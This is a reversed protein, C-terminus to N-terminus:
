RSAVRETLPVLIQTGNENALFIVRGFDYSHANRVDPHLNDLVKLGDQTAVVLVAHVRVRQGILVVISMEDASFGMERLLAYKALAFDECDGAGRRVFDSPADWRDSEGSTERDDKYAIANFAHNVRELANGGRDNSIREAIASWAARAAASNRLETRHRAMATAFKRHVQKHVVAHEARRETLEATINGNAPRASAASHAGLASWIALSVFFVLECSHINKMCAFTCRIAM